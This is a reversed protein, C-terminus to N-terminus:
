ALPSTITWLHGDPDALLATYGWPKPQPEEVVHAGAGRARDVLDTVETHDRAALDLLCEIQGLTAVEHDGIVWAFGDTPILM